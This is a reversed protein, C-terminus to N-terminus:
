PPAQPREARSGRSDRAPTGILHGLHQLMHREFANAVASLAGSMLVLIYFALQSADSLAASRALYHIAFDVGLAAICEWALGRLIWIGVAERAGNDVKRFRRYAAVPVTLVWLLGLAGVFPAIAMFFARM